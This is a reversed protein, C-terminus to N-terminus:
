KLIATVYMLAFSLVCFANLVVNKDRFKAIKYDDYIHIHLIPIIDKKKRKMSAKYKITPKYLKGALRSITSVVFEVEAKVGSSLAAFCHM